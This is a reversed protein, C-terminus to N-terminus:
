VTASFKASARSSGPVGGRDKGGDLSAGPSCGLFYCMYNFTFSVHSIWSTKFWSVANRIVTVIQFVQACDPSIPRSAFTGDAFVLKARRMYRRIRRSVFVVSTTGTPGYVVGGFFNDQGDLTATLDPHLQLQFGLGELSVPVPPYLQGRAEQIPCRMSEVTVPLLKLGLGPYFSFFFLWVAPLLLFWLFYLYKGKVSERFWNQQLNTDIALHLPKRYSPKDSPVSKATFCIQHVFTGVLIVGLWQVMKKSTFVPPVVALEQIMTGADCTCKVRIKMTAMCISSTSIIITAMVVTIYGPDKETAMSLIFLWSQRLFCICSYGNSSTSLWLSFVQLALNGLTRMPCKWRCDWGGSSKNLAAVVKM